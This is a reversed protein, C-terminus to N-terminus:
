VPKAFPLQALDEVCQAAAIIKLSQRILAPDFLNRLDLEIKMNTGKLMIYDWQTAQVSAGFKEVCRGRVAARTTTPPCLSHSTIDDLPYPLRFTRQDLLAYFLGHERDLLHYSLDLSRLWPDDTGLNEAQRFQELLQYKAAWDLRDATSLPDRELDNLIEEWGVVVAQWDADLNPCFEKVLQLYARQVDVGSTKYGQTDRCMWKWTIDRSLTKLTQIPDALRPVREPPAGNLLAQLVLSTTGIKLWTSYLSLNADGIIVHFRRYLENNAHPEDRTNIIPRRQMTDVSQLESFFDSRQSIQFGPGIFKDEEEWGFKGAGCVIQRTVFFAIM